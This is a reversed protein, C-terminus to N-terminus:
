LGYKNQFTLVLINHLIDLIAKEHIIDQCVTSKDYCYLLYQQIPHSASYAPLLTNISYLTVYCSLTTKMNVHVLIFNQM